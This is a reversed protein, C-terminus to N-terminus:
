DSWIKKRWPNRITKGYLFYNGNFTVRIQTRLHASANALARVSFFSVFFFLCLIPSLLIPGQSSILTNMKKTRNAWTAYLLPICFFFAFFILTIKNEQRPQITALARVCIYHIQSLIICFRVSIASCFLISHISIKYPSFLFSTKPCFLISRSAYKWIENYRLM